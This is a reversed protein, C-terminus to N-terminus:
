LRQLRQLEQLRQLRQHERGAALDRCADNGGAQLAAVLRHTCHDLVAQRRGVALAVFLTLPPAFHVPQAFLGLQALEVAHGGLPMAGAAGLLAADLALAYVGYSVNEIADDGADLALGVM